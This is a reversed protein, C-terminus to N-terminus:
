KEFSFFAINDYTKKANDNEAYITVGTATATAPASIDLGYPDVSDITEITAGEPIGAGVIAGGAILGTVSSVNAITESASTTDGTITNKGIYLWAPNTRIPDNDRQAYGKFSISGYEDSGMALEFDETAIQLRRIYLRLEKGNVNKGILVASPFLAAPVESGILLRTWASDTDDLYRQLVLALVEPQFQKLKGELTFEQSIIDRRVEQAPIGTSFKAYQVASRFVKEKDMYGLGKAGNGDHFDVYMAPDNLFMYDDKNGFKTTDINLSNSM